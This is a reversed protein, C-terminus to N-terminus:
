MWDAQTTTLLLAKPQFALAQQLACTPCMARLCPSLYGHQAKGGFSQVPAAMCRCVAAVPACFL